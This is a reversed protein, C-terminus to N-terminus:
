EAIRSQKLINQLEEREKDTRCNKEAELQEVIRRKRQRNQL